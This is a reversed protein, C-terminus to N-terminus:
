NRTWSLRSRCFRIACDIVASTPSIRDICSSNDMRSSDPYTRLRFYTQISRVIELQTKEPRRIVSLSFHTASAQSTHIFIINRIICWWNCASLITIIGAQILHHMACVAGLIDISTADWCRILDNFINKEFYNKRKVFIILWRRGNSFCFFFRFIERKPRAFKFSDIM